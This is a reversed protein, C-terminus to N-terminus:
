YKGDPGTAVGTTTGKIVVSVNPIPIQDAAGVVRGSITREQGNLATTLLMLVLFRFLQLPRKM